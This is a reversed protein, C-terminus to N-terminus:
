DISLNASATGTAGRKGVDGAHNTGGHGGLGRPGTTCSNTDFMAIVSSARGLCASPGGGGGGGPGGVGGNGGKGGQGGPGSDLACGGPAGGAGGRQGRGGDGGRGGAGGKHTVITNGTVTIKGAAAFVGFSGGGGMGGSGFDGGLGGCGGSGGGGGEFWIVGCVGGSSGGGGGGGGGGATGSVGVTGDFGNAPTYNLGSVRGLMAGGLGPAGPDSNTGEAGDGGPIGCAFACANAPGPTGGSKPNTAAAAGPKGTAGDGGGHGGRGGAISCKPEPGGGGSTSDLEAGNVGPEGDPATESAFPKGDEGPAGDVAPDVVIDNSRVFLQGVGGGLKVGYTSAGPQDSSRAVIKLRELHTEQDVHPADFVFGEAEVITTVRESRRFPFDPDGQDFGGYISIGSVVTVQEQYSEGSLCVAPLKNAEAVAIAHGISAVPHDRTGDGKTDDGLSPSVYVCDDVSPPPDRFSIACGGAAVVLIATAGLAAFRGHPAFFRSLM